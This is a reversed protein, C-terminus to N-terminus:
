ALKKLDTYSKDRFNTYDGEAKETLEDCEKKAQMVGIVENNFATKALIGTYTEKHSRIVGKYQEIQGVFFALAAEPWGKDASLKECVKLCYDVDAQVNDITSKAKRVAAAKDVTATDCERQEATKEPRGKSTKKAAAVTSM